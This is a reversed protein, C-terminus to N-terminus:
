QGKGSMLNTNSGLIFGSGIGLGGLLTTGDIFKLAIFIFATVIILIGIIDHQDLNLDIKM